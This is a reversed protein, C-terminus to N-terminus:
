IEFANKISRRLTRFPFLKLAATKNYRPRDELTCWLALAWAVHIRSSLVGLHYADASAINILMNDPLIM